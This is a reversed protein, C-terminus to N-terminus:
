PNFRKIGKAIQKPHQFKNYPYFNPFVYVIFGKESEKAFLIHQRKNLDGLYVGTVGTQFLGTINNSWKNGNHTKLWYKPNSRQAYQRDLSINIKGTIKPKSNCEILEFHRVSKFKGVNIEKYIHIIPKM